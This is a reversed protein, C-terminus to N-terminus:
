DIIGIKVTGVGFGRGEGGIHHGRSSGSTRQSRLKEMPMSMPLMFNTLLLPTTMILASPPPSVTLKM